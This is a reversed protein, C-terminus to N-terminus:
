LYRAASIIVAIVLIIILIVLIVNFWFIPKSLTNNTSKGAAYEAQDALSVVNSDDTVYVVKNKQAQALEFPVGCDETCWTRESTTCINDGCFGSSSGINDNGHNNSTSPTKQWKRVWFSDDVNTWSGVKDNLSNIVVKTFYSWDSVSAHWQNNYCLLREDIYNGPVKPTNDGLFTINALKNNYAWGVYGNTMNRIEMTSNIPPWVCAANDPINLSSNTGCSNATISKTVIFNKPYPRIISLDTDYRLNDLLCSVQYNGNLSKSVNYDYTYIYNNGERELGTFASGSIAFTPIVDISHTLKDAVCSVHIVNSCIDQTVRTDIMEVINNANNPNWNATEVFLIKDAYVDGNYGDGKLIIKDGFDSKMFVKDGNLKEYQVWQWQGSVNNYGTKSVLIHSTANEEKYFNFGRVSNDPKAQRVWVYYKGSSNFTNLVLEQEENANPNDYTYFTVFAWTNLDVAKEGYVNVINASNAVSSNETEVYGASLSTNPNYIGPGIVVAQVVGLLLIM